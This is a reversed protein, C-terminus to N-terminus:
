LEFVYETILIVIIIVIIILTILITKTKNVHSINISGSFGGGIAEVLYISFVITTFM